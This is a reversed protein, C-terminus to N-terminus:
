RCTSARRARCTARAARSRGSTTADRRKMARQVRGPGGNYSALALHWDGDFMKDLTKLYKAAAVRPRRPIRASTSTGTRAAPRERDGHGAHVAVVGRASAQSLANPKFASEILPIYALDLPLGEARFVDQIMPLYKAGRKLGEELFDRLRGQFLEVYALVRENLPIPIDHRHGRPRRSPRRPPPRPRRRRSRRLRWSSTSRRRSPHSKRSATARPSPRSRTPASATSSGTSISASGPETRAGYPSELLVSSRRTSSASAGARPARAGARARRRRLAAALDDILVTIPIPAGPRAAARGAPAPAVARRRRGRPVNPAQSQGRGCCAAAFAALLLIRLGARQWGDAALCSEVHTASRFGANRGQQTAVCPILMARRRRLRDIALSWDREVPLAFSWRLEVSPWTARGVFM